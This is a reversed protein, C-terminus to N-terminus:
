CFNDISFISNGTGGQFATQFLRPNINSLTDLVLNNGNKSITRTTYYKANIAPDAAADPSAYSGVYRQDIFIASPSLKGQDKALNFNEESYSNKTFFIRTRPDNHSVMFDVM